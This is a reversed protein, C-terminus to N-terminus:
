RSRQQLKLVAAADQNGQAQATQLLTTLTLMARTSVLRQEKTAEALNCILQVREYAVLYDKSNLAKELEAVLDKVETGAKAFAKQMAAPIQEAPLPTPPASARSCGAASLLVFAAVFATLLLLPASSGARPNQIESKM